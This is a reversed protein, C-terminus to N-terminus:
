KEAMLTKIENRLEQETKSSHFGKHMYRVVGNKGILYSTPMMPVHVQKVLSQNTDRITFFDPPTKSIFNTYASAVADVSVGIVVFGMSAYDKQIQNFAPFSAKCPACWSAWFDVLVIKDHTDPIPGTLSDNLSPFLDGVNIDACALSQASFYVALCVITKILSLRM